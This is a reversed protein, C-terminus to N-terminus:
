THQQSNNIIINHAIWKKIEPRGEAIDRQPLGFGVVPRRGLDFLV